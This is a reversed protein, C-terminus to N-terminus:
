NAVLLDYLTLCFFKIIVIIPHFRVHEIRSKIAHMKILICIQFPNIQFVKRKIELREM